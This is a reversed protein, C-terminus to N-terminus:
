RVRWSGRRAFGYSCPASYVRVFIAPGSPGAPMIRSSRVRSALGRRGRGRAAGSSGPARAPAACRTRWARGVLAVRQRRNKRPPDGGSRAPQAALRGARQGPRARRPQRRRDRVPRRTQRDRRPRRPGPGRGAGRRSRRRAGRGRGPGGPLYRRAEPDLAPLEHRPTFSLATTVLGVPVPIWLRAGDAQKEHIRVVATGGTCARYVVIGGLVATNLAIAFVIGATILVIKGLRSM